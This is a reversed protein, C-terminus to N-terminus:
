SSGPGLLEKFVKKKLVMRWGLNGTRPSITSQEAKIIDWMWIWDAAWRSHTDIM